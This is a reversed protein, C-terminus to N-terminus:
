NVYLHGLFVGDPLKLCAVGKLFTEIYKRRPPTEAHKTPSFPEKIIHPGFGGITDLILDFKIDRKEWWEWWGEVTVDAVVDPNTDLDIDLFTIDANKLVSKDACSPLCRNGSIIEDVTEGYKRGSGIMLVRTQVPSDIQELCAIYMGASRRIMNLSLVKEPSKALESSQIEKIIYKSNHLVGLGSLVNDLHTSMHNVFDVRKIAGTSSHRYFSDKFLQAWQKEVEKRDPKFVSHSDPEGARGFTQCINYALEPLVKGYVTYLVKVFHDFHASYFRKDAPLTYIIKKTMLDKVAPIYRECISNNKALTDLACYHIYEPHKRFIAHNDYFHKDMEEPNIRTSCSDLLDFLENRTKEYHLPSMTALEKTAWAHLGELSSFSKFVPEISNHIVLHYTTETATM